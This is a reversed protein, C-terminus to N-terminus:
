HVAPIQRHSVAEDSGSGAGRSGGGQRNRGGAGRGGRVGSPNAGGPRAWAAPDGGAGEAPGSIRRGHLSELGGRQGATGGQGRPVRVTPQGPPAFPSSYLLSHTPHGWCRGVPAQFAPVYLALLRSASLSSAATKIPTQTRLASACSGLVPLIAGTMFIRRALRGASGPSGGM